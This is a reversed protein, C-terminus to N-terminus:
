QDQDLFEGAGFFGQELLTKVREDNIYVRSMSREAIRQGNDDIFLKHQATVFFKEDAEEVVWVSNPPEGVRTLLDGAEVLWHENM